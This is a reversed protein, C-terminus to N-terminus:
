KQNSSNSLIARAYIIVMWALGSILLPSALPISAIFIGFLGAAVPLFVTILFILSDLSSFGYYLYKGSSYTVNTAEGWLNLFTERKVLDSDPEYQVIVFKPPTNIVAFSAQDIFAKGFHKSAYDQVSFVKLRESYHAYLKRGYKTIISIAIGAVIEIVM